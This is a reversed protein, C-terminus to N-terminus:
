GGRLINIALRRRDAAAARNNAEALMRQFAKLEAEVHAIRAGQAAIHRMAREDEDLGSKDLEEIEEATMTGGRAAVLEVARSAVFMATLRQCDRSTVEIGARACETEAEDHAARLTEQEEESWEM